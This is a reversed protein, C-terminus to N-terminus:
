APVFGMTVLRHAEHEPNANVTSHPMYWPLSMVDGRRWGQYAHDHLLWAQGPQWDTLNVVLSRKRLTSWPGAPLRQSLQSHMDTHLYVFGGPPQRYYHCCCVDYGLTARAWQNRPHDPELAYQRYMRERTPMDDLGVSDALTDPERFDPLDRIHGWHTYRPLGDAIHDRLCEEQRLRMVGSHRQQWLELWDLDRQYARM